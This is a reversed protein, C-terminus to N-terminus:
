KKAADMAAKIAEAKKTDGIRVYLTKLSQLTAM